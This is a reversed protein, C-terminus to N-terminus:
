KDPDSPLKYAILNLIVMNVAPAVFVPATSHLIYGLGVLPSVAAGVVYGALGLIASAEGACERGENMALTNAATFIMGMGLLMPALCLEFVRREGMQVTPVTCDFARRM